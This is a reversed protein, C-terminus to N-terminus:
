AGRRSERERRALRQLWDPLSLGHRALLQTIRSGPPTLAYPHPM